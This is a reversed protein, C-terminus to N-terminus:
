KKKKTVIIVSSTTKRDPPNGEWKKGYKLWADKGNCLIIADELGQGEAIEAAEEITVYEGWSEGLISITVLEGDKVGAIFHRYQNRILKIKLTYDGTAKDYDEITYTGRTMDSGPDVKKYSPFGPPSSILREELEDLEINDLEEKTFILVKGELANKVLGKNEHMKSVMPGGIVERGEVSMLPFYFLHPLYGFQKYVEKPRVGDGDKVIRYGYTTFKVKDTIDDGNDNRVIIQESSDEKEFKIDEISVSGDMGIVLSSYKREFVPEKANHFLEGDIYSVFWSNLMVNGNPLITVIEKDPSIKNEYYEIEERIEPNSFVKHKFDFLWKKDGKKLEYKGWDIEIERNIDEDVLIDLQLNEPKSNPELELILTEIKRGEELEIEKRVLKTNETKGLLKIKNERIMRCNNLYKIKFFNNRTQEPIFSIDTKDWKNVKLESALYFLFSITLSVFIVKNIIRLRKLKKRRM